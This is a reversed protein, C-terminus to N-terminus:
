AGSFMIANLNSGIFGMDQYDGDVIQGAERRLAGEWTTLPCRYEVMAEGVVILIMALHIMRFWPNRIWGWGLPWGILIALQGFIVFAIYGLHVAVIADALIANGNM